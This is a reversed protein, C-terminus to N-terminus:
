IISEIKFFWLCKPLYTKVQTNCSWWATGYSHVDMGVARSLLPPLPRPSLCLAPPRQLFSPPWTHSICLCDSPLCPQFYLKSCTACHWNRMRSRMTWIDVSFINKEELTSYTLPFPFLRMANTKLERFFLHRWYNREMFACPLLFPLKFVIFKGSGSRGRLRLWEGSTVVTLLTGQARGVTQACVCVCSRM